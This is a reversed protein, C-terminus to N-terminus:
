KGSENILESTKALLEKEWIRLTKLVQRYSEEPIVGDSAGLVERLIDAAASVKVRNTVIIYESEKVM